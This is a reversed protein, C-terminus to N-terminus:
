ATKIELTAILTNGDNKAAVQRVFYQQARITVVETGNRDASEKLGNFVGRKYEMRYAFPDYEVESLKKSETPNNFLVRGTKTPGGISPSWTADYGMTTTVVDFTSDQLGDFINDAM